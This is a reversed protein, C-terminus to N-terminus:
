AVGAPSWAEVADLCAEAERQWRRDDWGLERRCIPELSDLLGPVTHPAWLGLRVRRLLLDELRVVAGFALHARLEAVSLDDTGDM